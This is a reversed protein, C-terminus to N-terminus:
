GAGQTRRRLTAEARERALRDLVPVLEKPVPLLMAEVREAWIAEPDAHSGAERDATVVEFDAERVLASYTRGQLDCEDLVVYAVGDSHVHRFGLRDTM